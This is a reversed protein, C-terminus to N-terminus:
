KVAILPRISLRHRDRHPHPAAIGARMGAEPAPTRHLRAPLPQGRHSRRGLGRAAPAPADAGQRANAVLVALLRFERATLHVPVGARIVEHRALDVSVDGFEIRAPQQSADDRAGRRLLARIRALMEGVGFPKSLFDDAGADLAAIRAGETNRASLVLVPRQSWVRFETIFRVGDGDPLGLDLLVLEPLCDAAAILAGSVTWAESVRYGEQELASRVMRRIDPEDEVLLLRVPGSGAQEAM